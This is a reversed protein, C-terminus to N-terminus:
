IKTGKRAIATLQLIKERDKVGDTEAGGSIDVAFPNFAMAQEINEMNLGGAFFWPKSFKCHNLVDWNFARGSGAGSDVLYYDAQVPLPIGRELDASMVAKIVPVANGCGSTSANKLLSIYGDDETGHLQAIGIIGDRYLVAISEPAANVFVGVPVIGKALNQRLRGAQAPTVQRKSPAFVFGAYDIQAENAYDIDDGRFLGCIKINVKERL